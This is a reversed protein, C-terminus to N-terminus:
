DNGTMKASAEGTYISDSGWGFLVRNLAAHRSNGQHGESKICNLGHTADIDMGCLHCQHPFTLTRADVCLNVSIRVVDDEIIIYLRLKDRAWSEVLREKRELGRQGWEGGEGARSEKGEEEAGSNLAKRKPGM